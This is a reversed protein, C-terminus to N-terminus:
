AGLNGFFLAGIRPTALIKQHQWKRSCYRLLYYKRLSAVNGNKVPLRVHTLQSLPALAEKTPLGGPQCVLANITNNFVPRWAMLKIDNSARGRIEM